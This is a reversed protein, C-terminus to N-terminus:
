EGLDPATEDLEPRRTPRYWGSLVLINWAKDSRPLHINWGGKGGKWDCPQGPQAKCRPCSVILPIAEVDIGTFGVVETM